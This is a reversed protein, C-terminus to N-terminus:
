VQLPQHRLPSHSFTLLFLVCVAYYLLTSKNHLESNLLYNNVIKLFKEECKM